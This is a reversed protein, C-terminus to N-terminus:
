VKLLLQLKSQTLRRLSAISNALMVCVMGRVLETLLLTNNLGIINVKSCLGSM